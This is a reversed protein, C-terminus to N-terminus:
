LKLWEGLKSIWVRGSIPHIYIFNHNATMERYWAIGDVIDTKGIKKLVGGLFAKVAVEISEDTNMHLLFINNINSRAAKSLLNVYQLCIISSIMSNRYTILLNNIMSKYRIDIWDDFMNLFRFENKNLKNTKRQWDIYNEINMANSTPNVPCRILYRAAPGEKYLDIQPNMAFLTTLTKKPELYDKWWENYIKMMLTTKGSKSAGFLVFTNGTDPDFIPRFSPMMDKEDIADKKRRTPKPNLKRFEKNKARQEDRAKKITAEIEENTKGLTMITFSNTQPLGKHHTEADYLLVRIYKKREKNM